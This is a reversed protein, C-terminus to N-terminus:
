PLTDLYQHIAEMMPSPEDVVPRHAPAQQRRGRFDFVHVPVRTTVTTQMTRPPM